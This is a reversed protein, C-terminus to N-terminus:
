VANSRSLRPVFDRVVSLPLGAERAIPALERKTWYARPEAGLRKMAAAIRRRQRTERGAADLMAEQATQRM